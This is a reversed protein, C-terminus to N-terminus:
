ASVRLGGSNLLSDVPLKSATQHNDITGVAPGDEVLTLLISPRVTQVVAVHLPVFVVVWGVRARRALRSPGFYDKENHLYGKFGSGSEFLGPINEGRPPTQPM